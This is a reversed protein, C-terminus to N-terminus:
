DTAFFAVDVEGFVGAKAEEITVSKGGVEVVKGASRASAFLRLGSMPFHREQLLRLLEQGVAGTAGVIGVTYSPSNSMSDGNSSILLAQRERPMLGASRKRRTRM